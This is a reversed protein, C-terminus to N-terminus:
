DTSQNSWTAIMSFRILSRPIPTLRQGAMLQRLLRLPNYHSSLRSLLHVYHMFISSLPAPQNKLVLAGPHTWSREFTIHGPLRMPDKARLMLAFLPFHNLLATTTDLSAHLMIIVLRTAAFLSYYTLITPHLFAVLTFLITGLLLQDIDYDWSDLRDRLVNYRKGRFLNWLSRALSLQRSFVTTAILYCLHLQATLLSLIDSLLAVIMTMGCCGMAGVFWILGPFYPTAYRLIGGWASIVGLLSHCYFQSLETNLKLGAPWNNLWLLGRQMSEIMYYQLCSELISSLVVCNECLFSGFAIGLIVDNLVLWICNYFKIYRSISAVSASNNDHYITPIHALVFHGQETRVDLQEVTASIDQLSKQFRHLLAPYTWVSRDRPLATSHIQASVRHLHSARNAKRPVKQQASIRTREVIDVLYQATNLQNLVRSDLCGSSSFESRTFDNEMFLMNQEPGHERPQLPEHSPHIDLERFDLSYFRMSDRKLRQYHVFRPTFTGMRTQSVEDDGFLQFPSGHSSEAQTYYGVIVPNQLPDKFTLWDDTIVANRLIADADERTGAPVIGAVCILPDTWGYCFGDEFVPIDPWFILTSDDLM